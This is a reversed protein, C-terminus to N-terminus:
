RPEPDGLGTRYGDRRADDGLVDRADLLVQRADSLGGEPLPEAQEDPRQAARDVLALLADAALRAEESTCTRPLGLVEFYDRTRAAEVLTALRAEDRERGRPRQGFLARLAAEAGRAIGSRAAEPAAPAGAGPAAPAPAPAPAAAPRPRALAAELADRVAELPAGRPAWALPGPDPPIAEPAAVVVFAPADPAGAIRRSWQLAEGGDCGADVVAADFGVALAVQADAAGTAVEVRHGADRLGRRLRAIEGVDDNVLLIRAV